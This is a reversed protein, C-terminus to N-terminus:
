PVWDQIIVICIDHFLQLFLERQICVVERCPGLLGVAHHLIGQPCEKGVHAHSGIQLMVIREIVPGALSNSTGDEHCSM